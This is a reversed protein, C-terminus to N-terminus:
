EDSTSKKRRSRFFQQLQRIYNNNEYFDCQLRHNLADHNTINLVTGCAGTRFDKAAFVVRKVRAHVLAGACMPCPELTSYLTSNPFRYNGLKEGAQRLCMIEAHASPDHLAIPQNYATAIIEQNEGVLVAGVPVEGLAQAKAAAGIALQLMALDFECATNSPQKNYESM